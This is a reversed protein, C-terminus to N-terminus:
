AMFIKPKKGLGGRRRKTALDPKQSFLPRKERRHVMSLWHPLDTPVVSPGLGRVTKEPAPHQELTKDLQRPSPEDPRSSTVKALSTAAIASSMAAAAVDEDRSKPKLWTRGFYRKKLRWGGFLMGGKEVKSTIQPTHLGLAGM